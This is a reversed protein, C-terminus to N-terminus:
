DAATAPHVLREWVRRWRTGDWVNAEIREPGFGRVAYFRVGLLQAMHPYADADPESLKQWVETAHRYADHDDLPREAGLENCCNGRIVDAITHILSQGFYGAM